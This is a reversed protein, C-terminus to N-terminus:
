LPWSSLRRGMSASRQLEYLQAAYVLAAEEDVLQLKRAEPSTALLVAAKLYVADVAEEPKYITSSTRRAAENLKATVLSLPAKAFEPYSAILGAAPPVPSIAM